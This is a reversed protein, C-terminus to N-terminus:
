YIQNIKSKFKWNWKQDKHKQIEESLKVKELEFEAFMELPISQIENESLDLHQLSSKFKSLISPFESLGCHTITINTLSVRSLWAPIAGDTAMKCEAGTWYIETITTNELILEGTEVPLYATVLDLPLYDIGPNHSLDISRVLESTVFM